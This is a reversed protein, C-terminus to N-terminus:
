GRSAAGVLDFTRITHWVGDPGREYLVFSAAEFVAHFRSLEREAEDLAEPDVDHAVTVHPHYDFRLEVGLPGRRAARQLTDCQESGRALAAFVVQTTPRFTGSGALEVTFPGVARAATHLQAEVASLDWTPLVVPPVLTIHPPIIEGETAGAADAVRERLDRLWERHPSPIEIAVGVSTGDAFPSRFSLTQEPTAPAAPAHSSGPGGPTPATM